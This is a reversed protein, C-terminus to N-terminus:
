RVLSRRTLWRLQARRARRGHHRRRARREGLRRRGEPGRRPLRHRRRRHGPAGSPHLRERRGRAGFSADPRNAFSGGAALDFVVATPVIPVVNGPQAGIQFGRGRRELEAMVGGAADLGYASGGTLCIADVAPVMNVPDLLDTERTGPGGGRVDVGGATGVPPIVVTTGTLWGRGRRQFHGVAIGAVDTLDNRPGTRM